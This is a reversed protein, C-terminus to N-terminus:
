PHNASLRKARQRDEWRRIDIVCQKVIDRLHKIRDKDVVPSRRAKRLEGCFYSHQYTLWELQTM